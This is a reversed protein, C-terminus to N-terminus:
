TDKIQNVQTFTRKIKNINETFWIKSEQNKSNNNKTEIKDIEM